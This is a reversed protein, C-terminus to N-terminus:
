KGAKLREIFEPVFRKRVRDKIEAVHAPPLSGRTADLVLNILSATVNEMFTTVIEQPPVRRFAEAFKQRDVDVPERERPFARSVVDIITKSIADRSAFASETEAQTASLRDAHAKTLRASVVIGLPQREDPEVGYKEFVREPNRSKKLEEAFTVILKLASEVSRSSLAQLFENAPRGAASGSGGAASSQARSRKPSKGLTPVQTARATSLTGVAAAGIERAQEEAGRSKPSYDKVLERIRKMRVASFNTVSQSGM